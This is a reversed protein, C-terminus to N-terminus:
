KRMTMIVATRIGALTRDKMDIRIPDGASWKNKNTPEETRYECENLGNLLANWYVSNVRHGCPLDYCPSCKKGDSSDVVVASSREWTHLKGDSIHPIVRTYDPFTADIDIKNQMKDYFGNALEPNPALHLRHGDTAVMVTDDVYVYNLYYRAEETGVAQYVWDFDNKQKPVPPMFFQYLKALDYDTVTGHQNIVERIINYAEYKTTRKDFKAAHTAIDNITTPPTSIANM